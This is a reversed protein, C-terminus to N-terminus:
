YDINHDRLQQAVWRIGARFDDTLADVDPLEPESAIKDLEDALAPENALKADIAIDEVLEDVKELMAAIKEAATKRAM